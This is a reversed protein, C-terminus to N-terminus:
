MQRDKGILKKLITRTSKRILSNSEFGLVDLDLSM